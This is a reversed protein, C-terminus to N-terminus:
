PAGQGIPVQIDRLETISLHRAGTGSARAALEQRGEKSTLYQLVPVRFEDPVSIRYVCDTIAIPGNRLLGVQEDLRRGVRAVLIDGTSAFLQDPSSKSARLGWILKRSPNINIGPPFDCTHFVRKAASAREASSSRGRGIFTAIDSLSRINTPHNHSLGAHSAHFSHDLRHRHLAPAVLLPESLGATDLRRVFVPFNGTSGKQIVVLHTKVETRRFTGSPLEVVERVRHRELLTERLKEHRLGSLIGDPVIIAMHGRRRLFRLNQALFLVTAGAEELATYCRNLGADELLEAFEPRWRPRIFPPNCVAAAVSGLPVGTTRDLNPALVDARIPIVSATPVAAPDGDVAVVRTAQWRAAVASSLAGGGSGLDLVLNPARSPLREVVTVSTQPSTYYRGYVDSCRSQRFAALHMRNAVMRFGQLTLVDNDDLLVELCCVRMNPATDAARERSRQRWRRCEAGLQPALGLLGEGNLQYAQATQCSCGRSM